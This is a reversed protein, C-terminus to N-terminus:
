GDFGVLRYVEAITRQATANAMAAGDELAARVTGIGDPSLLAAMRQGIPLITAVHADALADKLPKFGGGGFESCIDALTRGTMAALLDALNALAPRDALGEPESPMAGGSDTVATRYKRAASDADDSLYIVGAQDPDSKSMKRAPDRLSMVRTCGAQFVKKPIRFYDAGFVHNFRRALSAAFQLHQHQDEGVPVLDAHHVLIDAAMLVPYTLLGLGISDRQDGTLGRNKDKFQTMRELNGLTAVHGLIQALLSHGPVASQRFLIARAPDVGCALLAAATTRSALGLTRPDHAVTTAHQDVVCYTAEHGDQLAVYGRLAGLFNGLHPVGGGTPQIGSFV